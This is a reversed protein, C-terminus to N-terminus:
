RCVSGTIARIQGTELIRQGDPPHEIAWLMAGIMQDRRLLGLRVASERWVPVAEGIRYFPLLAYPWWHGPGLIYWPRLITHALGSAALEGECKRRVAIYDHMVPAPHAVSIYIFHGARATAAARISALAAPLDVERFQRGKWPAPKPTGVLHVYTAGAPVAHRFTTEDFPNAVITDVGSPLKSESGRRVVARVQHEAAILREALPRGLYGTAGSFFVM